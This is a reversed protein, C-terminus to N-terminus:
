VMAVIRETNFTYYRHSFRIWSAAIARNSCYFSCYTYWARPADLICPPFSGQTYRVVLSAPAYRSLVQRVAVTGRGYRSRVMVTGRGCRFLVLPETRSSKLPRYQIKTLLLALEINKTRKYLTADVGCSAHVLGKAHFPLACVDEWTCMIAKLIRVSLLYASNPAIFQLRNFAYSCMPHVPGMELNNVSMACEYGWCIEPLNKM